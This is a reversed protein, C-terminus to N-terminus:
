APPPPKKSVIKLLERYHRLAVPDKTGIKPRGRKDRNLIAEAAISFPEWEGANKLSQLVYVVDAGYRILAEGVTGYVSAWYLRLAIPTESELMHRLHKEGNEWDGRHIEIAVLTHLVHVDDGSQEYAELALRQAADVDEGAKYMAWAVNNLAEPDTRWDPCARAKALRTRAQRTNGRQLDLGAWATWNRAVHPALKCARRFAEEADAYRAPGGYDSHIHGLGRYDSASASDGMARTWLKVAAVYDGSYLLLAAHLRADLFDILKAERMLGVAEAAMEDKVRTSTEAVVIAYARVAERARPLRSGFSRIADALRRRVLVRTTQDGGTEDFHALGAVLDLSARERKGWSDDACQDLWDADAAALRLVGGRVSGDAAVLRELGARLQKPVITTDLLERLLEVLADAASGYHAAIFATRQPVLRLGAEPEEWLALNLDDILWSASAESDDAPPKLEALLTRCRHAIERLGPPVQERWRLRVFRRVTEHLERAKFLAYRSELRALEEEPRETEWLRRLVAINPVRQIAVAVIANFDRVSEPKQELQVLFRQTVAEIIRRVVGSKDRPDDEPEGERELEELVHPGNSLADLVVGLALPVGRTLEQLRRVLADSPNIPYPSLALVEAIEGDTFLLEDFSEDRLHEPVKNHWTERAGVRARYDPRSESGIIVGLRTDSVLLNCVIWRLWRDCDPALLECSDLVLLLPRRLSAAELSARLGDALVSTPSVLAAAANPGVTKSRWLERVDALEGADRGLERLRRKLTDADESWLRREELTVQLRHVDRQVAEELLATQVEPSRGASTLNRWDPGANELEKRARDFRFGISEHEAHYRQVEEKASWFQEIIDPGYQQALREAVPEFMAEPTSPTENHPSLRRSGPRWDILAVAVRDTYERRALICARRLFTTKGMGGFGHLWLLRRRRRTEPPWPSQVLEDLM